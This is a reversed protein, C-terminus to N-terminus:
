RLKTILQKLATLDDDTLFQFRGNKCGQLIREFLEAHFQENTLGRRLAKTAERTPWDLGHQIEEALELRNVLEDRLDGRAIVVANRANEFRSLRGIEFGFGEEAAGAEADEIPIGGSSQWYDIEEM